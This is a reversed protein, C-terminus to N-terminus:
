KKSSTQPSTMSAPPPMQGARPQAPRAQRNAERAAAEEEMDSILKEV